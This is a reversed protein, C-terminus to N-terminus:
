LEEVTVIEKVASVKYGRSRLETVLEVASYQAFPSVVEEVVVTKRNYERKLLIPMIVKYDFSGHTLSYSGDRHKILIDNALMRDILQRARSPSTIGNKKLLNAMSPKNGNRVQKIFEGVSATIALEQDKKM